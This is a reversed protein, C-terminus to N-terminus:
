DTWGELCAVKEGWNSAGCSMKLNTGKDLDTSQWVGYVFCLFSVPTKCPHVFVLSSSFNHLLCLPEPFFVPLSFSDLTCQLTPWFWYQLVLFTLKWRSDQPNQGQPDSLLRVSDVKPAFQLSHFAADTPVRNAGPDCLDPPLHTNGLKLLGVCPGCM